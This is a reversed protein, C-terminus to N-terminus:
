LWAPLKNDSFKFHDKCYGTMVANKSGFNVTM